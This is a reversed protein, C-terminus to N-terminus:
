GPVSAPIQVPPVTLGQKAMDPGLDSHLAECRSLGSVLLNGALAFGYWASV